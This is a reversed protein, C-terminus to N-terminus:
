EERIQLKAQNRMSAFVLFIIFIMGLLFLLELQNSAKKGNRILYISQGICTTISFILILLSSKKLRIVSREYEMTTMRNSVNLYKVSGMIGYYIPLFIIIYPLSVYIVHSGGHNLFGLFGYICAILLMSIMQIVQLKKALDQKTEVIYYKGKYVLETKYKIKKKGQHETELVEYDSSYRHRKAM